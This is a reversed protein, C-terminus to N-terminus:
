AVETEVRVALFRADDAGRMAQMQSLEQYPVFVTGRKVEPTVRAVTVACGAGGCLKIKQKDRIKMEKADDANIEVFGQPYDLLMVRYERKLIESHAILVNQNWYYSSNGLVLTFPFDTSLAAPAAPRAVPVFKFSGSGGSFLIPTGHPADKTCPWQRGFEVGLSDYAAASYFPVATGIEAMVAAADAYNWDAGLAKAVQAIQQWAPTVGQPAPVAQRALQIRRETSTFSVTEEGFATTPLVVDALKATETLFLHQVIVLDCAELAKAASGLAATNVPDYRDLWVAKITGKARDKLVAEATVGPSSPLKAGYVSELESGASLSRYGPLRDPLMGMDCAGQLNNHESLPFIGAGPKGIQGTLLALNVAARISDSDRTEAGTSYLIASSPSKAYAVAVAEIQEAPVGCIQSAAILDYQKAQALFADYDSCNAKIFALDMLGHDVILKAMAGYLVAETGPNIQLFWDANEAVRQRREGIVVLKAGSIRARLVTGAVTPLQRALDVGDVIILDSKELDDISNTAAAVGLMDLLVNVSNNSYVGAGHDVNNTGIVGRALKQLLYSEENSCRPSNLFAISDPGSAGKIEKLRSAIFEYAEQWTVEELQGNKRLLPAKLRDPSSAVEHVHWGRICIKGKNAPHSVSPYVGAIREPTTELYLGCGVGCFTCTTLSQAM